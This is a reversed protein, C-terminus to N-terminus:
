QVGRFINKFPDWYPTSAVGLAFTALTLVLTGANIFFNAAVEDVASFESTLTFTDVGSFPLETNASNLGDERNIDDIRVFFATENWAGGNWNVMELSEFSSFDYEIYFGVNCEQSYSPYPYHEFKNSTETIFGDFTKTKNEFEFTISHEITLNVWPHSGCNYANNHDIFGYRLKDFTQNSPLGNQSGEPLLWEFPGDGSNGIYSDTGYDSVRAHTQYLTLGQSPHFFSDFPPPFTQAAPWYGGTDTCIGEIIFGCDGSTYLSSFNDGGNNWWWAPVGGYSSSYPESHNFSDEYDEGVTSGANSIFAVAFPLVVLLLIIALANFQLSNL